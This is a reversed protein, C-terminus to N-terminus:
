WDCDLIPLFSQMFVTIGNSKLEMFKYTIKIYNLKM